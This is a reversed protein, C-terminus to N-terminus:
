GPVGPLPGSAARSALQPGASFERSDTHQSHGSASVGQCAMSSLTDREGRSHHMQAHPPAAGSTQFLESPRHSSGRKKWPM